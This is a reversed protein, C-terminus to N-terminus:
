KKLFNAINQAKKDWTYNKVKEFARSVNDMAVKKDDTIATVVRAFDGFDDPVFSYACDGIVEEVLGLKSYIIPRRSAMYEYVKMPYGFGPQDPYPIAIIDMAMQYQAVEYGNKKGFFLCKEKVGLSSAFETYEKIEADTGGVFAMLFKDPLQTLSKIMTPIGKELGFTKFFGIYGIIIKDEPLGLVSRSMGKSGSYLDINVGGYVTSIKDGSVGSIKLIDGRLKNSTTILANSNQAIFKERWNYLLHHWDSCIRYPLRFFNKWFILIVLLYTDNTFFVLDEEKRSLFVFYPIWFFYFPTRFKKIKLRLNLCNINKLEQSFDNAVVFLFDKKLIASFCKALERAYIKIGNDAPYRMSTLYILKM